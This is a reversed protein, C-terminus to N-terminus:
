LPSELIAAVDQPTNANDLAHPSALELLRVRAEERILLRRPCRLGDSLAAEVVAFAAPEYIACLPEPLDDHASRYATVIRSQDRGAVLRQLTDATLLPLDCAVALWAAGPLDAHAAVLGAMPGLDPVLDHIRRPQGVPAEAGLGDGLDQEPRCSYAVDVCFPALLRATWAAQPLDHYRLLAKDHGMRRSFGGAM